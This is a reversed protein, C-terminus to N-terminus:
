ADVKEGRAQKIAEIMDQLRSEFHDLTSHITRERQSADMLLRVADGIRGADWGNLRVGSAEEFDHVMKRTTENERKLYQVKDALDRLGDAKGRDYEAKLEAVDARAKQGSRLLSAIFTRSLPTAELKPAVKTARLGKGYPEMLGWNEPVDSLDVLDKPAIVYWYDCYKQVPQAKSPDSLERKWDTRSAKIEFGMLTLGRSPYMSMAVADAWRRVTSGTGNAVEPLVVWEPPPYKRTLRLYLDATTASDGTIM